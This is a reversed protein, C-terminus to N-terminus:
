IISWLLLFAVLQMATLRAEFQTYSGSQNWQSQQLGHYNLPFSFLCNMVHSTCKLTDDYSGLQTKSLTKAKVKKKYM